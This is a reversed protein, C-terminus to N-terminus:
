EEADEVGSSFLGAIAEATECLRLALDDLQIRSPVLTDIEYAERYRSFTVDPDASFAKLRLAQSESIRDSYTRAIFDIDYLDRIVTRPNEGDHAALLKQDLIKEISYVRMGDHVVIGEDAVKDRYSVEIKLTGDGNPSSYRVRYRTVTKTDKPTDLSEITIGRRASSKIKSELNLKTESDFDLDESFRDLGYALMLATGGKLVLPTDAVRKLIELMFQKHSAELPTIDLEQGAM